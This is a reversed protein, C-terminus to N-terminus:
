RCFVLTGHEFGVAIDYGMLAEPLCTDSLCTCVLDNM